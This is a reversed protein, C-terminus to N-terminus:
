GVFLEIAAGIHHSECFAFDAVFYGSIIIIAIAIIVLNKM